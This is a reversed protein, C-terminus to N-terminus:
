EELRFPSSLWYQAAAGAHDSLSDAWAVLDDCIGTGSQAFADLSEEADHIDLCKTYAAVLDHGFYNM